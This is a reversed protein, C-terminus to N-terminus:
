VFLMDIRGHERAVAEILQKAAQPDGADSRIARLSPLSQKATAVSQDSSGTVIVTAGEERSSSQLRPEWAV